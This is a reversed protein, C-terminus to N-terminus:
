PAPSKIAAELTELDALRKQLLQDPHKGQVRLKHEYLFSSITGQPTLYLALSSATVGSISSGLAIRNKTVPDRAFGYYGITSLIGSAVGMSGIVPGAVARQEAVGRMRILERSERLITEDVGISHKRLREVDALIRRNREDDRGVKSLLEALVMFHQEMEENTLPPILRLIKEARRTSYNKAALGLIVSLSPAVTAISSAVIQTPGAGAAFRKQSLAKLGLQSAALLTFNSTANLIYFTDRYWRVANGQGYWQSFESVMRNRVYRFLSGKLDLYEREAGSATSEALLKDRNQLCTEILKLKDREYAIARRPSFGLGRERLLQTADAALELLSSAGGLASGVTATKLGKSLAMVSIKSPQQWARVNQHLSVISSAGLAAANAEQGVPYVIKRWLARHAVELRYNINFRDLAVLELAIQRDLERIKDECSADPKQTPEQKLDSTSEQSLKQESAM